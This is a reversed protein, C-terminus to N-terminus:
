VDEKMANTIATRHVKELISKAEDAAYGFREHGHRYCDHDKLLHETAQILVSLIESLPYPRELNLIEALRAKDELLAALNLSHLIVRTADKIVGDPTHQHVIAYACREAMERAQQEIQQTM